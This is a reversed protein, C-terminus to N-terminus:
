LPGEKKMMELPPMVDNGLTVWHLRSQMAREEPGGKRHRLFNCQSVVYGGDSLRRADFFGGRSAPDIGDSDTWKFLIEELLANRIDTDTESLFQEVLSQLQGTADRAMAQHLDYVNGYGQLDPLDAITESVDLWENAITYTNDTQFWVDTATGTTSDNWTFSGVQKHENGNPDVYSSTAYGTNISVIDMEDLTFLEDGSSYGDGDMDQWIRLQSFAADNADVKGDLNTDLEVLAEFGNAGAWGGQLLTRDGFLEGGDNIIGDSNRDIVLLGDDASAWGTQEAFGTKDHDFYAGDTVGTTEVGDGDLDLIIPSYKRPAPAACAESVFLSWLAAKTRDWLGGWFSLEGSGGAAKSILGRIGWNDSDKIIENYRPGVVRSFGTILFKSDETSLTINGIGVTEIDNSFRRVLDGPRERGEKTMLYFSLLDEIGLDGEIKVWSGLLPVSGGGLFQVMKGNPLEIGGPMQNDYDILFLRALDTQLFARNKENAVGNIVSDVKAIKQDLETQYAAHIASRGYTSVLALDVLGKERPSLRGGKTTVKDVIEKRSAEDAIEHALINQFLPRTSPNNLLDWQVPGFSYGSRSAKCLSIEYAGIGDWLENKMMVDHVKRKFGTLNDGGTFRITWTSRM